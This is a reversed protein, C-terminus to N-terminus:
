SIPGPCQWCAGGTAQMRGYDHCAPKNETDGNRKRKLLDPQRLAAYAQKWYEKANKPGENVADWGDLEASVQAPAPSAHHSCSPNRSPAPSIYPQITPTDIAQTSGVERPSAAAIDAEPIQRLSAM